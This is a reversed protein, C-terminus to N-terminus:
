YGYQKIEQEYKFYVNENEIKLMPNLKVWELQYEPVLAVPLHKVGRVLYDFINRKSALELYMYLENPNKARGLLVHSNVIFCPGQELPARAFEKVNKPIPNRLFPPIPLQHLLYFYELVSYANWDLKDNIKKWSFKIM